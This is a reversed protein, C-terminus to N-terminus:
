PDVGIVPCPLTQSVSLAAAYRLLKLSDVSNVAGSCDIDGQAHTLVVPHMVGIDTCPEFQSVSLAAGFRLVKLADVSGIGSGCDVNGWAGPNVPVPTPTPSPTPTPVPTPTPTTPCGSFGYTGDPYAHNVGCVDWPQVFNLGAGGAAPPDICKYAM